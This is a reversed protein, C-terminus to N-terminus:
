AARRAVLVYYFLEEGSMTLRHRFRELRVVDTDDGEQLATVFAGLEGGEPGLVAESFTVALWSGVGFASWATEIQHRSVHGLGLAGAGALCTLDYEAVAGAVSIEELTATFYHRYLGPRDRAAAPAAAPEPDLGVFPARVGRGRLSEAVVGNGAGMDLVRLAAVDEGADAVAASLADALVQPSACELREQVVAEYLGPIAYVKDYDHVRLQERRGDPLEVTFREDGQAREPEDHLTIEM